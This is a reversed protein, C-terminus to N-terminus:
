GAATVVLVGGGDAKYRAGPKVSVKVSDGARQTTVDYAAGPELGTIIYTRAAAPSAYSFAGVPKDLSVAFLVVTDRVMVGAFPTGEASNVLRVSDASAGSDAGQLVHLFRVDQPGGPAEVKLRFKMPEDDAPAGSPEQPAAEVSITADTPLLTTVFLRQGKPTTMTTLRGSVSAQTPFNLWFRKTRNATKTTARDYIIVHDSKLWIVSRSAHLVDSLSEYASNYLNTSDGQAYVFQDTVSYLPPPPDGAPIYLWQSGREWLMTRFDSQERNPRDNQITLTNQNDSAAYDLDYGVRQKTLWEGKRYFEVTNGNASQHDVSDWTLAYTFWNAGPSWDTRALLRRLGPAYLSTPLALRPDAPPAADPDFLLFYLISNVFFNGDAAREALRSAGGPAANLEIWRLAELRKANGTLEDYIGMPGFQLIFDPAAYIQGSGYWAPQYIEGADPNTVTAPSLSHLYAPITEDWYPNDKFVVQPGWAKPDDQGATYLALLFQAIYGTSQPGYEFGEPAMGGRSDTRLLHDAVYLWAGTASRLADHLKSDPDDAPDLALAMLGINRMHARYYNNASWRVKVPDSLLAPDNFLGLPEPHNNNTTQAQQNEDIWRLFVKRIAAKDQASLSPYIWDVTLGFASGYWRSRDSTSFTPDRFPQGEAAGPAARNIVAMLLSHARKAYDARRAADNDVLSMFAFLQAYMETPFEDWSTGGGDKAPVSGGDMDKVARAALAALGDHYVPNSDRAWSRLRPLDSARVWLRPHDALPAARAASWVPSSAFVIFVIVLLVRPVRM